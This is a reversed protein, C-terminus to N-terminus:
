GLKRDRLEMAALISDPDGMKDYEQGLREPSIDVLDPSGAGAGVIDTMTAPAAAPTPKPLTPTSESDAKYAEWFEVLEETNGEAMRRTLEAQYMKPQRDIFEQAAGSEALEFADPVVAEIKAQHSDWAVATSDAKTVEANAILKDVAETLQDIKASQFGQHAIMAKHIDPDVEELEKMAEALAKEAPDAEPESEPAPEMKTAAKAIHADMMVQQAKTLDAYGQIIESAATGLVEDDAKPQEEVVTKEDPMDELLEDLLEEHGDEIVETEDEM